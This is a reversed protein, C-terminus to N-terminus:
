KVEEEELLREATKIATEWEPWRTTIEGKDEMDKEMAVRLCDSLRRISRLLEHRYAM